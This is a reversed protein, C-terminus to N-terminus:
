VDEVLTSASQFYKNAKRHRYKTYCRKLASADSGMSNKYMEVLIEVSRSTNQHLEAKSINNHVCYGDFLSHMYSEINYNRSFLARKPPTFLSLCLIGIDLYRSGVTADVDVWPCMSWDIVFLKGDAALINSLWLDGHLVVMENASSSFRLYHYTKSANPIDYNAHIFSVVEGITFLIGEAEDNSLIKHWVPVASEIKEIVLQANKRDLRKVGPVNLSPHTKSLEYASLTKIYETELTEISGFKTVEEKSIIPDSTRVSDKRSPHKMRM